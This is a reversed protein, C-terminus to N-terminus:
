NCVSAKRRGTESNDASVRTLISFFGYLSQTLIGSFLACHLSSRQMRFRENEALKQRYANGGKNTTGAQFSASNNRPSRKASKTENVHERLESIIDRVAVREIRWYRSASCRTNDLFRGAAPGFVSKSGCGESVGQTNFM